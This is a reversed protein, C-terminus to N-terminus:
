STELDGVVVYWLRYSEQPRTILEYCLDGGSLVRCVCSVSM